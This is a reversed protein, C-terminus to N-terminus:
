EDKRGWEISFYTQEIITGDDLELKKANWDEHWGSPASEAKCYITFGARVCEAFVGEGMSTVTEPIIAEKLNLSSFAHNGVTKLGNGITLTEVNVCSFFARAEVEAVSDPLFIERLGFCQEFASEGIREVTKPIEM